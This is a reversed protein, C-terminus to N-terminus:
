LLFFHCNWVTNNSSKIKLEKKEKAKMGEGGGHKRIIFCIKSVANKMTWKHNKGSHADFDIKLWHNSMIGFKLMDILRLETEHFFLPAFFFMSGRITFVLIDVFNIVRVM